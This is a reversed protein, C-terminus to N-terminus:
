CKYLAWKCVASNLYHSVNRYPTVCARTCVCVGHSLFHYLGCCFYMIHSAAVKRNHTKLGSRLELWLSRHNTDELKSVPCPANGRRADQRRQFILCIFTIAIQLSKKKKSLSHFPNFSIFLETPM